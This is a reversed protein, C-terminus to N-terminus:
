SLLRPLLRLLLLLPLLLLHRLPLLLFHRLLLLPPLLLLHRLLLFLYVATLHHTPAPAGPRVVDSAEPANTCSLSYRGRLLLEKRICCSALLGSAALYANICDARHAADEFTVFACVSDFGDALKKAIEADCKRVKKRVYDCRKAQVKCARRRNAKELYALDFKRGEYSPSQSCVSSCVKSQGKPM